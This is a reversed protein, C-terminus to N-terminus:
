ILKLCKSNATNVTYVAVIQKYLYHLFFVRKLVYM